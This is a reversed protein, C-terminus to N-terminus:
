KKVPGKFLGKKQAYDWLLKQLMGRARALRSRVTGIPIDLVKAIDAYSLEQVDCLFVAERYEEPLESLAHTVEDGLVYELKSPDTLEADGPERGMERAHKYFSFELYDDIPESEPARKKKRYENIFVNKVIRFLWAKINTGREFSSFSKYARLYAEQLLDQAETKNRTLSIAFGFLADLHPLALEEFAGKESAAVGQVAKKARRFIEWVM